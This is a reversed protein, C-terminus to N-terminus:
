VIVFEFDRQAKQESYVIMNEHNKMFDRISYHVAEFGMNIVSHFKINSKLVPKPLKSSIFVIKTNEGIPSNLQQEKIFNNFNKDIKSDLRFMVSIDKNEFGESKLFTYARQFKEFESGGPIIFLTPSMIKVFTSLASIPYKESNVHFQQGPDTDLFTRVIPAIDMSGLQTSIEDSWASVGKQRAEFVAHLIDTSELDPVNKPINKFIPKNEELVLMPVFEEMHEQIASVQDSYLQFTEDFDFQENSFMETLIQISSETLAFIWAKEEPDWQAHEVRGKNKRITNVYSENYPFEVKIISGYVSNKQISIKKIINIQRFPFRFTPNKLFAHIDTKLSTSLQDAHSKIIKLAITGQKETFGMGRGIQDSFSYVLKEDWQNLKVSYTLALAVILDEVNM